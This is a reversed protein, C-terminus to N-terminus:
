FASEIVNIVPKTDASYVEAVDFRVMMDGFNKLALFQSAATKIKKQKSYTVADRANCFKNDKRTKVEVFVILNKKKAIIDVEGFKTRFNVDLLEYKKDTYWKCVLKEGLIGILRKDM